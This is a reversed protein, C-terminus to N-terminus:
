AWYVATSGDMVEFALMDALDKEYIEVQVRASIVDEASGVEGPMEAAVGHGYIPTKTKVYYTGMLAKFDIAWEQGALFAARQAVATAGSFEKELEFTLAPIGPIIRSPQISGLTRGSETLGDTWSLKFGTIDNDQATAAGHLGVKFYGARLATWSLPAENAGSPVAPVLAAAVAGMDAGMGGVAMQAYEDRKFDIEWTGVKAGVLRETPTATGLDQKADRLVNLYPIDGGANHKISTVGLLWSHSGLALAALYGFINANPEIGGIAWEYDQGVIEQRDVVRRFGVTRKAIRAKKPLSCSKCIPYKYGTTPAQSVSSAYVVAAAGEWKAYGM